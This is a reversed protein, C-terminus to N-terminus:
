TTSKIPKGESDMVISLLQVCKHVLREGMVEALRKMLQYGFHPNDELLERLPVANIVLLKSDEVAQAALTYIYPKVLSSWGLMEGRGLPSMAEIHPGSGNLYLNLCLAVAGEEVIYLNLAEDNEHFLWGDAEVEV